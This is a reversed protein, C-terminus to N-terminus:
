LPTPGTSFLSKACKRLLGERASRNRAVARASRSARASAPKGAGLKQLLRQAESFEDFDVGPRVARELYRRAEDAKGLAALIAGAHYLIGPSPSRSLAVAREITRRAPGDEGRLHFIWALTDLNYPQADMEVSHRALELAEDLDGGHVALFWALNNLGVARDFDQAALHRWQSEMEGLLKRAEEERGLKSLARWRWDMVELNRGMPLAQIGTEELWPASLCRSTARDLEAWEGRRLRCLSVVEWYDATRSVTTGELRDLLSLAEGYRRFDAHVRAELLDWYREGPFRKKGEACAAMAGEYDAVAPKQDLMAVLWLLDASPHEAAIRRYYAAAPGAADFVDVLNLILSVPGMRHPVYRGVLRTLEDFAATPDGELAKEFHDRARGLEGADRSPFVIYFFAAQVQRSPSGPPRFALVAMSVFCVLWLAFVASRRRDAWAGHGEREVFFWGLAGGTAAGGLHALSDITPVLFGLALQLGVLFFLLRSVPRRMVQTWRAAGGTEVLLYAVVVGFVAGSAGMSLGLPEGWLLSALNGTIGSAFYIFLYRWRGLAIELRGGFFLLCVANLLFHVFGGHLFMATLLRWYQGRDWVLARVLAGYRELDLVGIGMFGGGALAVACLLSLQVVILTVTAFIRPDFISGTPVISRENM